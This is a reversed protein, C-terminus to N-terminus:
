GPAILASVRCSPVFDLMGRSMRWIAAEAPLRMGHLLIAVIFVVAILPVKRRPPQTGALRFLLAAGVIGTLGGILVEPLTHFGLELRSAGIAVAALLAVSLVVRLSGTFLAVLGGAVVAAAATHGSPSLLAWPAFVPQCALFSLKLALIAGFTVGVVCLWALAGRWWGQAALVVSVAGVIPLVVAQDAFDTLFRMLTMM